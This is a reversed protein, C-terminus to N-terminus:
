SRSQNFFSQVFYIRSSKLLLSKKSAFYLAIFTSVNGFYFEQTQLLDRWLPLSVPALLHEARQTPRCVTCLACSKLKVNVTCLGYGYFRNANREKPLIWNKGGQMQSRGLCYSMFSLNWICTPLFQIKGFYILAGRNKQSEWESSIQDFWKHGEIPGFPPLM